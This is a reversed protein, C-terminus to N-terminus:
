FENKLISNRVPDASKAQQLGRQEMLLPGNAVTLPSITIWIGVMVMM